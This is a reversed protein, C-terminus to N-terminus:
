KILSHKQSLTAGIPSHQTGILPHDWAQSQQASLTLSWMFLPDPIHEITNTTNVSQDFVPVL